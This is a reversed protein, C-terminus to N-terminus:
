PEEHDDEEIEVIFGRAKFWEDVVASDEDRSYQTINPPRITVTRPNKGNAFKVMFKGRIIRPAAPLEKSRDRLAAFLDQAKLIEIEKQSGGWWFQVERLQVWDMGDIDGCATADEGVDRLPELTYKGKGDDPFYGVDGFLHRGFETRYLQKEGKTGANMRLEDLDPDYILVDYKEPRYFVSASEGDEISGQRQMPEGHRVLFWVLGEKHFIFVKSHRGRKKRSFWDDLSAELEHLAAESPEKFTTPFSSASGLFGEFSRPRVLYQEANKREVIGPNVLWMQLAVDAPTPDDGVDLTISRREAEELLTDMGDETAMENIHHLVDALDAPFADDPTMLVRVLDDYEFEDENGNLAVGRGDFYAMHAHLLGMLNAFDIKKLTGARAFRKLNLTSM